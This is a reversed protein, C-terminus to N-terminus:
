SDAPRFLFDDRGERQRRKESKRQWRKESAKRVAVVEGGLPRGDRRRRRGEQCVSTALVSAGLDAAEGVGSTQRRASAGHYCQNGVGVGRPRGARRRGKIQRM